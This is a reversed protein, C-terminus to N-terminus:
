LVAEEEPTFLPDCDYVAPKAPEVIRCISERAIKVWLTLTDQGAENEADYTLRLEGFPEDTFTKKYPRPMVDQAFTKFSEKQSSGFTMHVFAYPIELEGASEIREVLKKLEAAVEIAKPM